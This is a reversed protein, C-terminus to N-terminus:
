LLKVMAADPLGGFVSSSRVFRSTILKAGFYPCVMGGRPVGGPPPTRMKRTFFAHLNLFSFYIDAMLQSDSVTWVGHKKTRLACKKRM